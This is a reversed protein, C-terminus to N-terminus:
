KESHKCNKYMTCMQLHKSPPAPRKLTPHPSTSINRDERRMAASSACVDVCGCVCVCVCVRSAGVIRHWLVWRAGGGRVGEGCGRGTGGEPLRGVTLDELFYRDDELQSLCGMVYRTENANGLRLRYLNVRKHFFM